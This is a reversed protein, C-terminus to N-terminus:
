INIGRKQFLGSIKNLVGPKNKMVLLIRKANM